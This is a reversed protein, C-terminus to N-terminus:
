GEGGEAYPNTSGDAEYGEKWARAAFEMCCAICETKACYHGVEGGHGKGGPCPPDFFEKYVKLHTDTM